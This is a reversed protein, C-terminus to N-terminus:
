SGFIRRLWKLLSKRRRPVDAVSSVLMPGAFYAATAFQGLWADRESVQHQNSNSDTRSATAQTGEATADNAALQVQGALRGEGTAWWLDIDSGDTVVPSTWPSDALWELDLNDYLSTSTGLPSGNAAVAPQSPASTTGPQAPSTPRVAASDGAEDPEQGRVEQDDDSVASAQQREDNEGNEGDAKDAEEDGEPSYEVGTDPGESFNAAGAPLTGGDTSTEAAASQDSAAAVVNNVVADPGDSLVTGVSRDADTLFGLAQLASQAQPATSGGSSSTTSGAPLVTVTFTIEDSMAPEGDDTVRVTFT